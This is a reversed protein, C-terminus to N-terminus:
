DEDLRLKRGKRPEIIPSDSNATAKPVCGLDALLEKVANRFDEDKAADCYSFAEVFENIRAERDKPTM